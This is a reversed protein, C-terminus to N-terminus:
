IKTDEMQKALGQGSSLSKRTLNEHWHRPQSSTEAGRVHFVVGCGNSNCAFLKYVHWSLPRACRWEWQLHAQTHEGHRCQFISWFIIKWIVSFWSACFDYDFVFPALRVRIKGNGSGDNGIANTKTDCGISVFVVSSNSRGPRGGFAESTIKVSSWGYKQRMPQLHISTFIEHLSIKCKWLLLIFIWCVSGAFVFHVFVGWHHHHHRHTHLWFVIISIVM